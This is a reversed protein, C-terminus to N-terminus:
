KHHHWLSSIYFKTRWKYWTAMWRQLSVFLEGIHKNSFL